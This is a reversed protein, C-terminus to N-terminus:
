GEKRAERLNGLEYVIGLIKVLLLLSNNSSESKLLVGDPLGYVVGVDIWEGM